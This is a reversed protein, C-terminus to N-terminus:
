LGNSISQAGDIRVKEVDTLPKGRKRNIKLIIYSLAM